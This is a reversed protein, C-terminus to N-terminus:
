SELRLGNLRNAISQFTKRLENGDEATYFHKPSTACYQLTPIVDNPVQFGVTFISIGSAKMNDCLKRAQTVSNGNSNEYFNNFMGDTMILAVKQVKPDSYSAPASEAPFVYAWEPSLLYWAWAIGLHGATMGAAQLDDIADHLVTIQNTLPVVESTPCTASRRRLMSANPAKDGFAFTGPRETVCTTDRGSQASGNNNVGNSVLSAITGSNVATSFPAIAIRNNHPKDQPLLIDILDTAAGKLDTLKAGAMSGSVDLMMSVEVDKVDYVATSDVKVGMYEKGMVASVTTQVKLDCVVTVKNAVRDIVLSLNEVTSYGADAFNTAFYDNVLTTLEEDTPNELRLSKAAALAAADLANSAVAAIRTSRATDIAIGMVALIVLMMLGFLPAVAGDRAALLRRSLRTPNKM